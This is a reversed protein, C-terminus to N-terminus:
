EGKEKLGEKIGEKIAEQIANILTIKNEIDRKDGLIAFITALILLVIITIITGIVNM